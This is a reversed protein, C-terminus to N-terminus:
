AVIKPDLAERSRRFQPLVDARLDAVSRAATMTKGPAPLEIM